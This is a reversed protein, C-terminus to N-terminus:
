YIKKISDSLSVPSKEVSLIEITESNERAYESLESELHEIAILTISELNKVEEKLQAVNQAASTKTETKVSM